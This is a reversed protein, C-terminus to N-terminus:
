RLDRGSFPHYAKISRRLQRGIVRDIEAPPLSTAPRLCVVDQQRVTEGAQMDRTFFISRRYACRNKQEGASLVKGYRGLAIETERVLKAMAAFERPEMSFHHEARAKTRRSLTFHKEVVTAGCAVALAPLRIDLSHDSFGAPVRFRDRLYPITRLSADSLALPYDAVCHLLTLRRRGLVRVAATIEAITAMGTSLITPLGTKAVVRLLPINTVDMSALKIADVKQRDLFSATSPSTPTSIFRMGLRRTLTILEPYWAEPMEWTRLFDVWRTYQKGPKWGKYADAPVTPAAIDEARFTQFKVADAGAAAAARIMRKATVLKAGHNNGIEAILLTRVASRM